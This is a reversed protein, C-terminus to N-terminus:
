GKSPAADAFDTETKVKGSKKKVIHKVGRAQAMERGIARQEGKKGGVHAARSSGEVRSRWEGHEFYTEIDGKAMSKSRM